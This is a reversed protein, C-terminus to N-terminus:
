GKRRMKLARERWGAALTGALAVAVGLLALLLGFRISAPEYKFTVQHRGAAVPVARFTVNAPQIPTRRGDVAAIWGPYYTDNLILYAGQRATVTM